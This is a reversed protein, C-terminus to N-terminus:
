AAFLEPFENKLEPWDKCAQELKRLYYQRWEDRESPLSMEYLERNTTPLREGRAIAGGPGPLADLVDNLDRVKKGLLPFRQVFRRASDLSRFVLHVRFKLQEYPRWRLYRARSDDIELSQDRIPDWYGAGNISLWHELFTRVLSLWAQDNTALPRLVQQASPSMSVWVEQRRGGSKLNAKFLAGVADSPVGAPTAIEVRQVEEVQWLARVTAALRVGDAELEREVDEVAKRAEDLVSADLLVVEALIGEPTALLEIDKVERSVGHRRLKERLLEDIQNETVLAM